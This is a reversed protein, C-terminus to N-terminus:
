NTPFIDIPNKNPRTTYFLSVAILNDRKEGRSEIVRETTNKSLHKQVGGELKSWIVRPTYFMASLILLYLPVWQYYTNYLPTKDPPETRIYATQQQLQRDVAKDVATCPGEFNDPLYFHSYMWCYADLVESRVFEHAFGPDCQIPRGFFQKATVLISFAVLISSTVKNYLQFSWSDIVLTKKNSFWLSKKLLGIIEAM